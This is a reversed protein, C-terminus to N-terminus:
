YFLSYVAQVSFFFAVWAVITIVICAILKAITPMSAKAFFVCLAIGGMAILMPIIGGLAVIPIPVILACFVLVWGPAPYYPEGRNVLKGDIVLDPEDGEIFLRAQIGDFQVPEDFDIFRSKIGPKVKQTEGNVTFEQGGFTKKCSFKYEKGNITSEWEKVKGV